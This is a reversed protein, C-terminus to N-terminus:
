KELEKDTDQQKENIRDVHRWIAKIDREMGVLKDHDQRWEMRMGQFESKMESIDRRVTQLEVILTTVQSTSEHNDKKRAYYFAAIAISLTLLGSIFSLLQAADIGDVM